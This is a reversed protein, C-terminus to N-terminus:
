VLHKFNFAKSFDCKQITQSFGHIKYVPLGFKM